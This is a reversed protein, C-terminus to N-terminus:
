QQKRKLVSRPTRERMRTSARASTRAAPVAIAASGGWRGAGVLAESFLSRGASSRASHDASTTDGLRSRAAAATRVIAKGRGGARPPRDGQRRLPRAPGTRRAGHRVIPIALATHMPRRRERPQRQGIGAALAGAAGSSSQQKCSETAQSAGPADLEGTSHERDGQASGASLLVERAERSIGTPQGFCSRTRATSPGM